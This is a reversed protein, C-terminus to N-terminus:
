LDLLGNAAALAVATRAAAADDAAPVIRAGHLNWGIDHAIRGIVAPDGVLVPEIMGLAAAQRTSELAV